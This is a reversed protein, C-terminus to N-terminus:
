RSSRAPSPASTPAATAASRPRTACAASRCACSSATRPAPSRSPSRPRASAPLARRLLPDPGEPKKVLQRVALFEVIREKVKELGYHDENLIQEAATCTRASAPRRRALARRDALRPLQALRHGRGVDAADVRPAEAGPAGEGRRGEADAGARDEQAARRGRQRPRGQPGAGEPDGEDERQPLVGEAGAGDAEQRPGPHPPRGPAQRGRGRPHRRHPHPAGAALLDRAPEAEGRGAVVLHSAITDALKGPDEVRVAALMADYHLNNSLKVYQEFLGIVKSM